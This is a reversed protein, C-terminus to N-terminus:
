GESKFKGNDELAAVADDVPYCLENLVEIGNWILDAQKETITVSPLKEIGDSHLTGMDDLFAKASVTRMELTVKGRISGGHSKRWNQVADVGKGWANGGVALVHTMTPTAKQVAESM